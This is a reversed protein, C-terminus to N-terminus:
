CTPSRPLNQAASHLEDYVVVGHRLNTVLKEVADASMKQMSELSLVLQPHGVRDTLTTGAASHSKEYCRIDVGPIRRDEDEM